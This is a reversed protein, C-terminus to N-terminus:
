RQELFEDIRRRTAALQAVRADVDARVVELRAFLTEHAEQPADPGACALVSRVVDRTFGMGFLLQVMSARDVAAEDYDRYGNSERDAEILGQKEYYRLSRQSVGSRTSLEGIRM